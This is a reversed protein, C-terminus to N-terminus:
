GVRKGRGSSPLTKHVTKTVTGHAHVGLRTLNWEISLLLIFTIFVNSVILETRGSVDM